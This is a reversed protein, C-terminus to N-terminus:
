SRNQQNIKRALQLILLLLLASASALAGIVAVTSKGELPTEWNVQYLNFLLMAVAVIMFIQITRKM